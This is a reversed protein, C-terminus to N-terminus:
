RGRWEYDEGKIWARLAGVADESQMTRNFAHQEFRLGDELPLYAGHNIAQKAASLAIPSRAALNEAFEAVKVSFDDPPYLRHVLGLELAESPTMMTGHLILDLAKATGLMHAFRQTGGAGPIIGASTEPLGYTFPGDAMLRFDCALSLECGGGAANGNLAAITIAPIHELRQCLRHVAHLEGQGRTLHDPLGHHTEATDALEGVDYHAIFVGNGAGTLVLVRVNPDAEIENMMLHLEHVEPATLTHAPPNSMVCTTVHGDKTITLHQYDM